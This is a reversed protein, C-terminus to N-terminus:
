FFDGLEVPLAGGPAFSRLFAVIDVLDKITYRGSFDGPMASRDLPETTLIREKKISRLVPPLGSLDYVKVRTATEGARLVELQEGDRTTLLLLQRDTAVSADPFLIDRLIAIAPRGAVSILDPGVRAGSGDVQHCAGCNADNSVDFFLARGRVPDGPTTQPQDPYSERTEGVPGDANTGDLGSSEEVLRTIDATSLVGEAAATSLRMLPEGAPDVASLSSIYAVVSWIEADSLKDEWPAMATGPVGERTTKFLYRNSFSRGRFRPGRGARGGKGHCYGRSCNQAFLKDGIQIIRPDTFAAVPASTPPPQAASVADGLGLRVVLLLSVAPFGSVRM